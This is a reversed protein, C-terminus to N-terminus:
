WQLGTKETAVEGFHCQWQGVYDSQTTKNSDHLDHHALETQKSLKGPVFM